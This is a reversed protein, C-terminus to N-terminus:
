SNEQAMSEAITPLIDSSVNNDYIQAVKMASWWSLTVGAGGHGYNHIINNDEEIRVGEKRYPRYGYTADASDLDLHAYQDTIDKNVEYIREPIEVGNVTITNEPEEGTWEGDIVQGELQSGGFLISEKRPYMYVSNDYDNPDYTYSFSLPKNGSYPIKILHGKLAIMSKDNFLEKSGYGTCNIIKTDSLDDLEESNIKTGEIEGGKALYTEYLQPIYDSMEVFLEDCVFGSNASRNRRTPVYRKGYSDLDLANMRNINTQLGNQESIYFHQHRRVPVNEQKYFPTFLTECEKVLEDTDHQTKVKAPYVSAAAYNTATKHVDTSDVYPFDKSLIKTKYGIEQLVIGVSLGQVGAGIIRVDM